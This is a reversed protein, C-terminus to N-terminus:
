YLAADQFHQDTTEDSGKNCKTPSSPLCTNVTEDVMIDENFGPEEEKDQSLATLFGGEVEEQKADSKNENSRILDLSTSLASEFVGLAIQQRKWAQLIKKKTELMQERSKRVTNLAELVNNENKQFFAFSVNEKWNPCARQLASMKKKDQCVKSQIESALTQRGQSLMSLSIVSEPPTAMESQAEANVQTSSVESSFLGFLHDIGEEDVEEADSFLRDWPCNFSSAKAQSFLAPPVFSGDGKEGEEPIMALVGWISSSETNDDGDSGHPSGKKWKTRSIRDQHDIEPVYYEFAEEDQEEVDNLGETQQFGINETSDEPACAKLDEVGDSVKEATKKSPCGMMQTLTPQSETCCLCLLPNSKPPPANFLAQRSMNKRLVTGFMSRQAQQVAQTSLKRSEAQQSEFEENDPLFRSNTTKTTRLALAKEKAKWTDRRHKKLKRKVIETQEELSETSKELKQIRRILAKEIAAGSRAFTKLNLTAGDDQDNSKQCSCTTCLACTGKRTRRRARSPAASISSPECKKPEVDRKTTAKAPRGRKRPNAATESTLAVEGADTETFGGQDYRGKVKSGKADEIAKHKKKDKESGEGNTGKVPRRRKGQGIVIKAPPVAEEVDIVACFEDDDNDEREKEKTAQIVYTMKSKKIEAQQVDEKGSVQTSTGGKSQSATDKKPLVEEAQNTVACDDRTATKPNPYAAENQYTDPGPNPKQVSVTDSVQEKIGQSSKDAQRDQGCSSREKREEPKSMSENRSDHLNKQTDMRERKNPAIIAEKSSEVNGRVLDKLRQKVIRKTEKSLQKVGLQNGLSKCFSKVTVKTKDSQAYLNDIKQFLTSSEGNANHANVPASVNRDQDSRSGEAASHSAEAEPAIDPNQNEIAQQARPSVDWFEVSGEFPASTDNPFDDGIPPEGCPPSKTFESHNAKPANNQEGNIETGKTTTRIKKPKQFVDFSLLFSDTEEEEDSSKYNDWSFTPIPPKPKELAANEDDEEGLFAREM